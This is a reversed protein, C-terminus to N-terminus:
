RLRKVTSGDAAQLTNDDVIKILMTESADTKESEPEKQDREIKLEFGAKDSKGVSYRGQNSQQDKLPKFASDRIATVYRGDPRFEIVTTETIGTEKDSVSSSWSGLLLKIADIPKQALAIPQASSLAIFAAMTLVAKLSLKRM